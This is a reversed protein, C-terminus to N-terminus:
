HTISDYLETPILELNYKTHEEHWDQEQAAEQFANWISRQKM